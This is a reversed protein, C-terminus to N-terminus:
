KMIQGEKLVSSVLEKETPEDINKPYNAIACACYDTIKQNAIIFMNNIINM